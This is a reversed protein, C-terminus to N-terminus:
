HIRDGPKAGSDPRLIFIETGGKGAACVMAESTGFRMKRPKLNAVVVVLSGELEEPKYAEKIGAFLSKEIGGIQVVLKLLQHAGEVHEAKIVKAVRLDVKMFDDITCEPAIPEGLSEAPATPAKDPVDARSEEIIMDINEKEVRQALHEFTVITHNELARDLSDWMLPTIALSREVKMAFGPLVPKMYLTILRFAELAATLVRRTSERDTKITTWPAMDELYKNAMDALRCIERMAKSYELKEYHGAITPASARISDLFEKSEEPIQSSTSEFHRNLMSGVRFGLNAIKGLVDSNVRAIFDTMNLDIDGIGGSMKYAYYYRLYEPPVHKAFTRAKIFTGRSKSMKEGDVTLFGHIFIKEPTSFDACRLMAPWFLCHFYMIDKGIFHYIESEGSRWYEAFDRGTRACWNKTSAMYGIPADLWVYFYKDETGPIKFGFYPADRSIDWDRLGQEFWEGLKRKVETQLHDSGVWDKLYDTFDGLKFFFHVTKKRVPPKRCVSCVPNELDTPTYASSCVECSDGYQDEAKCRPCTGKIFRDPLFMTDHECYFQEIEKEAIHGKERMRAYVEETLERNEGSNTTYFNDFAVSFASFDEQHEEKMRAILEEPTIGEKRASIM